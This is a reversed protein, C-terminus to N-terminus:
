KCESFHSTIDRRIHEPTTDFIYKNFDVYGHNDKVYEKFTKVFASLSKDKLGTLIMVIDGNFKDKNVQIMHEKEKIDKIIDLFNLEPFYSDIVKYVLDKDFFFNMTYLTQYEKNKSYEIIEDYVVSRRNKKQSVSEFVKPVFYKSSIIYDFVDYKTDFGKELRKYDLGLFDLISKFDLTLDITRINRFQNNIVTDYEFCLGDWGFKINFKRYLRGILVSVDVWSYYSKTIEYYTPKTTIFDIQFNRYCISHVNSNQVYQTKDFHFMDFIQEKGFPKPLIIDLDGFTM